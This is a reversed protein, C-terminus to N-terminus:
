AQAEALENPPPIDITAFAVGIAAVGLLFLGLLVLLVRRISFLRRWGKRRPGPTTRRPSPNRGTPPPNSM